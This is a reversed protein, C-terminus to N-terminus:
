IPILNKVPIVSCKMQLSTSSGSNVHTCVLHNWDPNNTLLKRCITYRCGTVSLFKRLKVIKQFNREFTVHGEFMHERLVLGAFNYLAHILFARSASFLSVDVLSTCVVDRFRFITLRHALEWPIWRLDSPILM